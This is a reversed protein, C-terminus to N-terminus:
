NNVNPPKRFHPYGIISPITYKMSIGDLFLHHSPTGGDVSVEMKDINMGRKHTVNWASAPPVRSAPVRLPNPPSSPQTPRLTGWQESTADWIHRKKNRQSSFYLPNKNFCKFSAGGLVPPLLPVSHLQSCNPEWLLPFEIPRERSRGQPALADDLLQFGHEGLNFNNLLHSWCAGVWLNHDQVHSTLRFRM